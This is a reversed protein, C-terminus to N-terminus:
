ALGMRRFIEAFRHDYTHEGRVRRYGAQAVAAREDERDLWWGLQQVLERESEFVGVEQGPVLYSELHPVRDTLLFGGSGPVEFTRGKIQSKRPEHRDRNVLAAARARISRPPSFAASLNLNIRSAGFVRVMEAHGIRGEPWGYGWCRVDFGEARLREVTAPRNGYAQGVFTVEYELEPATWDYAYRNCAWQSLIVNEYGIERYKPLSDRDTTISWDFAPAFHRTFRDFRWHDDAFWNVTPGGARSVERITEADIEDQFLFFFSLDPAAGRATALLRRNMEGKGRERAEAMFDFPILEHGMGELASRFNADEFSPGRAPDGYDDAMAVYLIRMGM